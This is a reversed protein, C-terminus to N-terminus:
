PRTAETSARLLEDRIERLKAKLVQRNEPGVRLLIKQGSTLQQFEPDAYEYRTWPQTSPIPGKVETLTVKPPQAPEPTALLLNIVEFLRTHLSRDSFGLDRYAQQLVPYMRRYLNVAGASDISEVFAVFPRYRGANQAAVAASPGAGDTQFRGPTPVVPWAAVPAHERGLNDMTAVAKRPFDTTMLFRLVRDRGFFQELAGAFENAPLVEAPAPQLETPPKDAVPPEAPQSAVETPAPRSQQRSRDFWFWALGALALAVLLLIIWPGSQSPRRPAPERM